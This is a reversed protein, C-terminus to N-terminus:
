MRSGSQPCIVMLILPWGGNGADETRPAEGIMVAGAAAGEYFRASIEERGALFEPKNAYSRNAIYFSSRKLIAALMRRHEHPSDVHFTRHKLDAGSPAVTDYYYFSQRREAHDLLAHHTAASRRGINCVEILRPQDSSAPAFRPVDVAFPLYTCPRGILREV